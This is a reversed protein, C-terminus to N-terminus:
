VGVYVYSYISTHKNCREIKSNHKPVTFMDVPTINFM